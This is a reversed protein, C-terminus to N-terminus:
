ICDDGEIWDGVEWVGMRTLEQGLLADSIPGMYIRWGGPMVTCARENAAAAERQCAADAPRCVAVLPAPDQGGGGCGGTQLVAVAWAIQRAKM